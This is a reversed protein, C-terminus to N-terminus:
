KKGVNRLRRICIAVTPVFVVLIYVYRMFMVFDQMQLALTVAVLTLDYVLFAIFNWLMYLWFEKRSTRGKFDAYQNKLIDFFYKKM